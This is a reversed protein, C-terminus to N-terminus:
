LVLFSTVEQSIHVYTPPLPLICNNLYRGFLCVSQTSTYSWQNKFNARPPLLHDSEARAVKSGFIFEPKWQTPAQTPAAATTSTKSLLNNQQKQWTKFRLDKLMYGLWKVSQLWMTISSLLFTRILLILNPTQNAHTQNMVPIGLFGRQLHYKEKFNQLTFKNYHIMDLMDEHHCHSIQKKFSLIDCTVSTASSFWSGIVSWTIIISGSNFKDEQPTNNV